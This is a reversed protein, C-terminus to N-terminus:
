LANNLAAQRTLDGEYRRVMQSFPTNPFVSGPLNAPAVTGPIAPNFTGRETFVYPGTALPVFKGSNTDFAERTTLLFAGNKAPVFTGGAPIFGYAPSSLTSAGGAIPVFQGTAPNFVGGASTVFRGSTLPYTAAQNYGPT